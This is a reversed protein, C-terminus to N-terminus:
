DVRASPHLHYEREAFKWNKKVKKNGQGFGTGAMHMNQTDVFNGTFGCVM